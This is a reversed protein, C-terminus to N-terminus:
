RDDCRVAKQIFEVCAATVRILKRYSNYKTVDIDFPYSQEYTATTLVITKNESELAPEEGFDASCSTVM